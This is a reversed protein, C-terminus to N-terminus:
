VSCRSHLDFALTFVILSNLDYLDEAHSARLYSYYNITLSYARYWIYVPSSRSSRSQITALRRASRLECLSPSISRRAASLHNLRFNSLDVTFLKITM